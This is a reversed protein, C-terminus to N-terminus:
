TPSLAEQAALKREELLAAPDDRFRNWLEVSQKFTAQINDSCWGHEDRRHTWFYVMLKYCSTIQGAIVLVDLDTLPSLHNDARKKNLALVRKTAVNLTDNGKCLEAYEPIGKDIRNIWLKTAMHAALTIIASVDDTVTAIDEPFDEPWDEPKGDVCGELAFIQNPMIHHGLDQRSYLASYSLSRIRNMYISATLASVSAARLQFMDLLDMIKIKKIYHWPNKIRWRDEPLVGYLEKSLCIMRRRFRFLVYSLVTTLLLPIMVQFIDDITSRLERAPNTPDFFESYVAIASSALLLVAVFQLAREAGGVSVRHFISKKEVAGEQSPIMNIQDEPNNPDSAENLKPYLSDKRVPTDSVILLDVNKWGVDVLDDGIEGSTKESVRGSLWRAWADPGPEPRDEYLSKGCICQSSPKAPNQTVLRNMALLLSVIGQNDYVGGDMLAFFDVESDKYLRFKQNLNKRLQNKIATNTPRHASPGEGEDDPWHFDDPFFMPEMGAPICSSAAMIDAMRIQKAHEECLQINANGILSEFKSKQFRFANGTQFETANFIIESLHGKSGETDWLLGFRPSAAQSDVDSESNAQSYFRKFYVRDYLDALVNIMDRRGSPSPFKKCSLGDLLEEITNLDPLFEYFEGFYRDFSHGFHQSLAYGIGTLSGGSVTSLITVKELLDLRELIELLGLHFGFARVGGGSLSLAINDIDANSATLDENYSAM